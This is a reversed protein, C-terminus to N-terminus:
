ETAANASASASAANEPAAQATQEAPTVEGETAPSATQQEPAQPQDAAQPKDSAQSAGEAHRPRRMGGRQSNRAFAMDRATVQGAAAGNLDVRAAGDTLCSWYRSGRCWTAIAERVEAESLALEQAHPLLDELIGIKLPLKPAPKKPFAAPFRKQLKGIAHVVPDVPEQPPRNKQRGRSDM